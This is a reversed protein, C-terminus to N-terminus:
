RSTNKEYKWKKVRKKLQALLWGPITFFALSYLSTQLPLTFLETKVWNWSFSFSGGILTLWCGKILGVMASFIFTMVLLTSIGDEFFHTKYPYLCFTAFCYIFAYTGIWTQTAFLDLLFGCAFSLWLAQNFSTRYLAIM